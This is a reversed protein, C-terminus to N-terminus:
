GGQIPVPGAPEDGGAPNSNTESTKLVVVSPDIPASMALAEVAAEHTATPVSASLQASQRDITESQATQISKASDAARQAQLKINHFVFFGLLAYIIGYLDTKINDAPIINGHAANWTILWGALLGALTTAILQQGVTNKLFDLFAQMSLGGKYGFLSLLWHLLRAFFGPGKVLTARVRFGPM